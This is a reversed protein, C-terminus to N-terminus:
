RHCDNCDTSIEQTEHCNICFEMTLENLPAEPPLESIGIAGHCEACEIEAVSVHRRHSYFVHRPVRYLRQWPIEKGSRIFEVLKAEEDGDTLPDEHCVACIEVRPRGAFENELVYRHCTDCDLEWEETHLRHNFQIPQIVADTGRAGYGFSFLVLVGIGVPIGLLSFIRVVM